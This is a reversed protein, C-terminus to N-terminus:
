KMWSTKRGQGATSGKLIDIMSNYCDKTKLLNKSYTFMMKPPAFIIIKNNNKNFPFYSIIAMTFVCPISLAFTVLWLLYICFIVINVLIELGWHRRSDGCLASFSSLPPFPSPALVFSCKIIVVALRASFAHVIGSPVQVIWIELWNDVLLQCLCM